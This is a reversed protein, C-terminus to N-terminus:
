RQAVPEAARWREAFTALETVGMDSVCWVELGNDNWRRLNFGDLQQSERLTALSAEEPWVYMDIVHQGAQYVLVAAPKGDVVDVRGGKLPYDAIEKVPPSFSVKGAFWPKVTHHDSSVVDVLHSDLQMARIHNGVLQSGVESTHSTLILSVSVFALAAALGWGLAPHWKGSRNRRPQTSEGPPGGLSGTPNPLTAGNPWAGSSQAGSSQAGSSQSGGARAGGLEIRESLEGSAWPGGAQAAISAGARIREGLREPAAFRPARQMLERARELTQRANRCTECQEVHGVLTAADAADLEGDFDAQVLLIRECEFPGRETQSNM